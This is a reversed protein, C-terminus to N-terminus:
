ETMDFEYKHCYFNDYSVFKEDYFFNGGFKKINFKAELHLKSSDTNITVLQLYHLRILQTM